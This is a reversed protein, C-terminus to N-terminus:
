DEEGEEDENVRRALDARHEEYEPADVRPVLGHGQTEYLEGDSKKTLSPSGKHENSNVFHVFEM